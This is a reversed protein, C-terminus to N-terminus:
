QVNEAAEIADHILQILLKRGQESQLKGIVQGQVFFPIYQRILQVLEPYIKDFAANQQEITAEKLNLAPM